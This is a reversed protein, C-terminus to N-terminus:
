NSNSASTSLPTPEASASPAKDSSPHSASEEALKEDAPEHREAVDTITFTEPEKEIPSQTSPDIFKPQTSQAVDDEGVSTERCLPSKPYPHCHESSDPSGDEKANPFGFDGSERRLLINSWRKRRSGSRSLTASDESQRQQQMSRRRGRESDDGETISSLTPTSPSTISSPSSPTTKKEQWEKRKESAWSSWSSLYAGAKQSVANVSAQAQAIDVAPPKRGGFWSSTASAVSATDSSPRPQDMSSRQSQLAREENRKRQAERMSEIDAWFSNFAASVKKQGTALHRNLAERGERVREDLHLEAVQQSLRRQVDEITLGGACPHRPEVISFLLADSTLYKFLAYNSTTQWHALFDPNFDLAPDGEINYAELQAKSRRGSEGSSFSHLEEHYKMSALLALLYEEFQLRIFEESGMYGHDKPRQPHTEDWTDNIIQTLLDIWRRDAASLVLASRLSPSSITIVDEDLNILIDSYRDKQQLLLSNTSGVVYSKTGHDALLDLQQLPTYPGFMSGKGFIQLPLGMYALLSARDSTKLSTPKGVTQAYSDAAPDACDQLSNILGPILSILSFQIMCLRECRSGFFLMKPQLLLAKFLVLTQYKFEHIMERLSLGLNQDKSAENQEWSIILGERFKKLIDIDSFDRQAFWASTVVSLKERLQGVSQPTDTIVVVAKQVTSRTVDAPRNILLNSDLQRSCAIGFLSTAPATETEKKRLTFYSFEETSAHAGDSLAMFPLLSWDNKAAIDIDEEGICLEIEPGRAHHFDIVMVIPAQRGRVDSM